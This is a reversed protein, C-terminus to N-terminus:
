TNILYIYICAANVKDTYLNPQEQILRYLFSKQDRGLTTRTTMFITGGVNLRVWEDKEKRLNTVDIEMKKNLNLLGNEFSM